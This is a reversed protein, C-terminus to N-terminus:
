ARMSAQGHDVRDLQLSQFASVLNKGLVAPAESVSVACRILGPAIRGPDDLAIELVDFTTALVEQPLAPAPIAGHGACHALDADGVIGDLRMLMADRRAVSLDERSM